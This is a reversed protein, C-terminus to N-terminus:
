KVSRVIITFEPIEVNMEIGERLATKVVYRSQIRVVEHVQDVAWQILSIM